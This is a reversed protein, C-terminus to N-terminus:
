KQKPVASARRSSRMRKSSVSARKGLISITPLGNVTSDAKMLWSLVSGTRNFAYRRDRLYRERVLGLAPLRQAEGYRIRSHLKARHSDDKGSYARAPSYEAPGQAIEGVCLEVTQRGAGRLV